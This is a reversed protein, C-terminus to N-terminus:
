WIWSLHSSITSGNLLIHNSELSVMSPFSSVGSVGTIAGGTTQIGAQGTWIIDIGVKSCNSCSKEEALPTIQSYNPNGAPQPFKVQSKHNVTLKEANFSKWIAGSKKESITTVGIGKYFYLNTQWQRATVRKSNNDYKTIVNNQRWGWGSIWVGSQTKYEKTIDINNLKFVRLNDSFVFPLTDNINSINSNKFLTIDEFHNEKYEYMYGQEFRYIKDGIQLEQNRNLLLALYPDPIAETNTNEININLVSLEDADMNAIAYTSYFHKSVLLENFSELDIKGYELFYNNLDEQSAFYVRDNKISPLSSSTTMYSNHLQNPGSVGTVDKKCSNFLLIAFFLGFFIRKM